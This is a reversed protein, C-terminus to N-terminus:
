SDTGFIAPTILNRVNSSYFCRRQHPVDKSPIHKEKFRTIHTYNLHMNWCYPIIPHKANTDTAHM